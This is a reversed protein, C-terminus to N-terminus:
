LRHGGTRSHGLDRPTTLSAGDVLLVSWLFFESIVPKPVLWAMVGDKTVGAKYSDFAARAGDRCAIILSADSGRPPPYPVDSFLLIGSRLRGRVMLRNEDYNEAFMQKAVRLAARSNARHVVKIKVSHCSGNAKL